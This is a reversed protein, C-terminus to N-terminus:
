RLELCGYYYMTAHCARGAMDFVSPCRMRTMLNLDGSLVFGFIAGIKTVAPPFADPSSALLLATRLFM